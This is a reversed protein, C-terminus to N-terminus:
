ATTPIPRLEPPWWAPLIALWLPILLLVAYALRETLPCPKMSAARHFATEVGDREAKKLMQATAECITTEKINLTKIEVVKRDEKEM